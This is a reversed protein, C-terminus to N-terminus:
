TQEDAIPAFTIKIKGTTSAFVYLFSHQTAIHITLMETEAVAYNGQIQGEDAICQM